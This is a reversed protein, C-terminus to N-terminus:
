RGAPALEYLGEVDIRLTLEGPQVQTSADASAAEAKYLRMPLPSPPSSRVGESLNVLRGLRQGTADAYLRAKAQLAQVAKRRAADEAQQPNNLGFAIGHIQNAGSAVAADLTRGLRSLERVTITLQNAALYGTLRPPKNQDYQYQANLSLQSTQIDKEAIGARVFAAVVQSMREANRAMAQAATPAETEVGVSVTAQDPAATVEGHAALSLTTARWQADAVTQAQALVTSSCLAAFVAPISTNM